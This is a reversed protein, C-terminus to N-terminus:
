HPRQVDVRQQPCRRRLGDDDFLHQGAHPLEDCGTPMM